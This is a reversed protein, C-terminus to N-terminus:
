SPNILIREGYRIKDEKKQASQQPSSSEKFLRSPSGRPKYGKTDRCSNSRSFEKPDETTSGEENEFCCFCIVMTALIAVLWPLLSFVVTTM